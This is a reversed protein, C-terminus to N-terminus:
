RAAGLLGGKAYQFPKGDLGIGPSLTQTRQGQDAAAPTVGGFLENAGNLYAEYQGQDIQNEDKMKTLQETLNQMNMGRQEAFHKINAKAKDYDGGANSLAANTYLMSMADTGRGFMGEGASIVNALGIVRGNVPDEYNIKGFGKGDKGFDFKSGDALTGQWEADLLGNKQLSERGQDRIMQYKDKDSAFHGMALGALAGIGAGIATGIGPIASGIAAGAAAGQMTANSNRRGGAPADSVYKNLNYAGYVGAIPGLIPLAGAATESGLAAGIGAAGAATNIGAGVYNKNKYDQYGQYVQAAGLLGQGVQGATIGAAQGDPTNPIAIVSGDINQGAAIYGDPIAGGVPVTVTPNIRAAGIAEPTAIGSAPTSGPTGAALLGKPANAGAVSATPATVSAGPAVVKSATDVTKAADAAEDGWGLLGKGYKIAGSGIEEGLAKGVYVAGLAGAIPAITEGLGAKGPQKEVLGQSEAYERAVKPDRYYKDDWPWYVYGPVEGHAQYNPGTKPYKAHNFSPM